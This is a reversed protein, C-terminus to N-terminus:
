VKSSLRKNREAMFFDAVERVAAWSEAFGLVIFDGKGGDAFISLNTKLMEDVTEIGFANQHPSWLVAYKAPTLM